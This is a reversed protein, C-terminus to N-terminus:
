AQGTGARYARQDIRGAGCVSGYTWTASLAAHEDPPIVRLAHAVPECAGSEPEAGSAIATWHVASYASAGPALTVLRPPTSAERVQKTPVARGAADVLQIGGYGYVRCTSRTSNTLVISLYRQGAGADLNRLSLRLDVTRCRATGSTGSTGTTGTTGTPNAPDTPAATTTDQGSGGAGTDTSGTGGPAPPAATGGGSDGCGAVALAAAACITGV